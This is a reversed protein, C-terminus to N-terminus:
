LMEHNTNGGAASGISPGGQLRVVPLNEALPKLVSSAPEYRRCILLLADLKGQWM